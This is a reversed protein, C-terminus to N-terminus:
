RLHKVTFKAFNKFAGLLVGTFTEAKSTVKKVSLGRFVYIRKGLMIQKKINSLWKM